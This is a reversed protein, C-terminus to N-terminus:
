GFFVIGFVFLFEICPKVSRYLTGTVVAFQPLASLYHALRFYGSFIVTTGTGMPTRDARACSKCFFANLAAFSVAITRLAGSAQLSYYENSDWIVDEKPVANAVSAIRFIWMCGYLAINLKNMVNHAQLMTGPGKRCATAIEAILYYVFFGAVIFEFVVDGVTRGAIVSFLRVINNKNGVNVGGTAPFEVYLFYIGFSDINENYISFQISVLRTDRAVYVGDVMTQVLKAADTSANAATPHPFVVGYAGAPYFMNENTLTGGSGLTLAREEDVTKYSSGAPALFGDGGGAHFFKINGNPDRSITSKDELDDEWKGAKGWCPLKFDSGSKSKLQGSLGFCYEPSDKLRLQTVRMGGIIANQGFLHGVDSDEYATATSYMQPVFVEGLWQYLEEASGIDFFTKQIQLFCLFCTFCKTLLEARLNRTGSDRYRSVGGAVPCRHHRSGHHLHTQATHRTHVPAAHLATPAVPTGQLLYGTGAAGPVKVPYRSVRGLRKAATSMATSTVSFCTCGNGWFVLPKNHGHLARANM